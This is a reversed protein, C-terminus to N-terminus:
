RLVLPLYIHAQVTRRRVALNNSEDGEAIANDPDIKAWLEVEGLPLSLPVATSDGPGLEGLTESYVM